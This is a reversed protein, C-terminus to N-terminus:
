YIVFSGLEHEHDKPFCHEILNINLQNEHQQLMRKKLLYM